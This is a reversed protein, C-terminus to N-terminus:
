QHRRRRKKRRFTPNGPRRKVKKFAKLEGAEIAWNRGIKEGLRGQECYRRVLSQDIGLIEAAEATTHYRM